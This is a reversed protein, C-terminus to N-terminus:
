GYCTVPRNNESEQIFEDARVCGIPLSSANCKALEAAVIDPPGVLAVEVDGKEAALVAGKVIDVLAYDGSMADVAVRIRRNAGV